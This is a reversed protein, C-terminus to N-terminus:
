CRVGLQWKGGAHREAHKRQQCQLLLGNAISCSGQKHMPESLIVPGKARQVYSAQTATLEDNLRAKIYKMDKPALSRRGCIIFCKKDLATFSLYGRAEPPPGSPTLLEVQRRHLVSWSSALLASCTRWSRVAPLAANRDPPPQHTNKVASGTPAILWIRLLCETIIVLCHQLRHTSASQNGPLAGLRQELM